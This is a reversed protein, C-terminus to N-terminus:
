DSVDTATPSAEDPEALPDPLVTLIPRARHLPPPFLSPQEPDAVIAIFDEPELARALRSAFTDRLLRVYYDTDNSAM